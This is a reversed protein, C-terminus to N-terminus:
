RLVAALGPVTRAIERAMMDAFLAAGKEGLHTYDFRSKVGEPLPTKPPPEEALTDAEVTGMAAVADYSKQNLDIVPVGKDRAIRLVADAWPRLDNQLRGEKFSRRTLPTVLVVQGGGKHVEDVYRAMNVPFETALDTSREAKGPQDNHGFQILVYTKRSLATAQDAALLQQVQDWLGEVRFSKSSRGGRALNICDVDPSFRKCLADGYGTRTAMTSDGVLIVRTAPETRAPTNPTMTQGHSLAPLTASLLAAACTALVARLSAVPSRSFVKM